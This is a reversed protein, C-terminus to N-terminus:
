ADPGLIFKLDDLNGNGDGDDKGNLSFKALRSKSKQLKAINKEVTGETIYKFVTVTRTQGMWLARAIAQEEMAPNWQPEVIHILNANTLTTAGTDISMLLVRAAPNNSFESLIPTRKAFPVRGDIQLPTIGSSTLMKALIDLTTRWSTFVISKSDTERCSKLLKNTVAELKSSCVSSTEVPSRPASIDTASAAYSSFASPSPLHSPSVSLGAQSGAVQLPRDCLRCEDIGEIVINTDDEDRPVCFDCAEDLGYSSTQPDPQIITGHNCLRRLKMIATFLVSHKTMNTKTSIIRDFEVSCDSLVRQYLASENKTLTIPVEEFIAPPLNLQNETRRLCTVRLLMQLNQIQEQTEADSQLPGIIHTKFAKPTRLPELRLFVLLSRLDELSNQIPTGTLCWRTEAKLSRAAKFLTTAVRFWHSNYMVKKGKWDAALTHYTTLTIDNKALDKFRPQAPIAMFTALRRRSPLVVRTPQTSQISAVSGGRTAIAAPRGSAVKSCMIAGLMTMTKGLSMVDALIGGLCAATPKRPDIMTLLVRQLDSCSTAEERNLIFGVSDLLRKLETQVLSPQIMDRITSKETYTTGRSRDVNEFSNLLMEMQKSLAKQQSDASSPGVFHRLDREENELYFYHPNMYAMGHELFIPHQLYRSIDDVALGVDEFLTKPGLINVSLNIIPKKRKSGGSIILLGQVEQFTGVSRRTHM